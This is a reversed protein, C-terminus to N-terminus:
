IFGLHRHLDYPSLKNRFQNHNSNISPVMHRANHSTALTTDHPYLRLSIFHYISYWIPMTAFVEHLSFLLWQHKNAFFFNTTFTLLLIACCANYTRPPSSITSLVFSTELLLLTADNTTNQSTAHLFQSALTFTLKIFHIINYWSLTPIFQPFLSRSNNSM